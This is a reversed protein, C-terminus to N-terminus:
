AVEKVPVFGHMRKDSIAMLVDAGSINKESSESTNLHVCILM